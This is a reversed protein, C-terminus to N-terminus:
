IEDFCDLMTISYRVGGYAMEMELKKDVTYQKLGIDKSYEGFNNSTNLTVNQSLDNKATLEMIILHRLQRHAYFRQEIKLTENGVEADFWKYFIGRKIDLAYASEGEIGFVEFALSCTSPLRARHAHQTINIPYIPYRKSYAKGNYLGSVYVTDSYLVSAVYGNGITPMMNGPRNGTISVTSFDKLPLKKTFLLTETSEKPTPRLATASMCLLQVTVCIALGLFEM